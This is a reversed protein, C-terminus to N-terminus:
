SPVLGDCINSRSSSTAQVAQYRKCVQQALMTDKRAYLVAKSFYKKVKKPEKRFAAEEGLITYRLANQSPLAHHEPHSELLRIYANWATKDLARMHCNKAFGLSTCHIQSWAMQFHVMTMGLYAAEGLANVKALHRVRLFWNYSASFDKVIRYQEALFLMYSMRRWFPRGKHPKAEWIPLLRKELQQIVKQRSNEELKLSRKIDKGNAIHAQQTCGSFSWAFCVCSLMLVIRGYKVQYDSL